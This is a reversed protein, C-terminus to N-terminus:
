VGAAPALPSADEAKRAGLPGMQWFRIVRTATPLTLREFNSFAADLGQSSNPKTGLRAGIIARATPWGWGAAKCLILIPDPREGGMLRDVVDIPVACLASLGAVMEEYRGGKAFEVTKAENLEGRQRLTAVLRAAESYDRPAAKTAVEKSVRALVNRIEVQVEPTAQAFLRQQVVATAKLLLARFLPPPIDPRQGVREALVEDGESRAVLASFGDDSIQASPNGAVSRAVERDGRRVLVNTVTQAIDPRSSIALLHQQGKTEAIEVLDREALRRSQRLVPGAVSIDEDRALRGILGGPANGVPALRHSLEARAKSEIEDILRNFVDDFLRVHDESYVAAGELFLTTIRRLAQERRRASGQQVIDELEPILSPVASM